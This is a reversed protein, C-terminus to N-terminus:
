AAPPGSLKHESGAEAGGEGALRPALRCIWERLSNHQVWSMFTADIITFANVVLLQYQLPVLAFNATQVAPWVTVEAALSPLLDHQLKKRV